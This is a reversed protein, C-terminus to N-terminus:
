LATSPQALCHRLHFSTLKLTQSDYILSALFAEHLLSMPISLFYLGFSISHFSSRFTLYFRFFLSIMVNNKAVQEFAATISGDVLKLKELAEQVAQVGRMNDAAAVAEEGWCIKAHKCLNSTSKADGTNLYRHVMWGNGKGMCCTAGCEFVHVRHNNIYEVLRRQKFFVYM